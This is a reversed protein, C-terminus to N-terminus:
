QPPENLHRKSQEIVKRLDAADAATPVLRLYTELEEVVRQHMARALYIIALLRHAEKFEEPSIKICTLYAEVAADAQALRDLTRGLYYYALASDAKAKIADRLVPEADKLRELRFLAVGRSVLPVYADPKIKLAAQLAEDAKDPENLKLYLVGMESLASLYAPYEAVALKLQEIAGRYDKAKELESAKKFLEEAHKPIGADAANVVAPKEGKIRANRLRITIPYTSPASGSRIVNVRQSAAEFGKEHDVVVDYAGAGLGTFVFHGDDDTTAVIDVGSLTLLEIRVRFKVPEGSPALVTGVITNNGGLRTNTDMMGGPLQGAALASFCLIM